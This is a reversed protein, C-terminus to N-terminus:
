HQLSICPSSHLVTISRFDFLYKMANKLTDLCSQKGLVWFVASGAGALYFLPFSCLSVIGYQQALSLEHGMIVMKKEAHRKNLVYCAGLSAAVAFM